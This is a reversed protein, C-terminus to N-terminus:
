LLNWQSVNDGYFLGFSITRNQLAYLSCVSINDNGIYADFLVEVYAFQTCNYLSAM